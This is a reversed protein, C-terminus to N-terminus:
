KSAGPYATGYASSQSSGAKTNSMVPQYSSSINQSSPLGKLAQEQMIAAFESLDIKTFDLKGVQDVTLGTCTSFDLGLQAKGQQNIIRALVSNFSCYTDTYELCAGLVRKSCDTSVYVSLNSGKHLALMQENQTCSMLSMIYQIAIQAALMYPNFSIFGSSVGDAGAAGSWLETTGAIPSSAAFSGTGFTFGYAGMSMGNGAFNTALSTPDGNAGINQVISSSAGMMSTQMGSDFVTGSFMADFVYPSVTDVAKQGAYKVASYAATVGLSAVVDNNSQGGPEAKCCNKIGGYGKACTEKIGSFIETYVSMERSIEMALAAKIFNENPNSPTPLTAVIGSTCQLEQQTTADKTQCQYTYNWSDCAGTVPDNDSCKTILIACKPNNEYPGCTNTPTNSKCAYEYSYKWCTQPINVANAQSVGSLCVQVGSPHTKCPTSDICTESYPVPSCAGPAYTQGYANTAMVFLFIALGQLICKIEVRTM